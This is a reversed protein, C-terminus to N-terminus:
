KVIIKQIKSKGSEHIQKVIYIGPRLSAICQTEVKSIRMGQLNYYQTEVVADNEINVPVIGTIADTNVGIKLVANTSNGTSSQFTIVSEFPAIVATETIPMYDAGESNLQYILQNEELESADINLPALTPNVQLRYTDDIFDLVGAELENAVGSYSIVSPYEFANPFEIIYGTNEELAPPDDTTIQEGFGTGTWSKLWFNNYTLDEDYYESHITSVPFPFGISYWKKEDITKQAKINATLKSNELDLSTGPALVLSKVTVDNSLTPYKENENVNIIVTDTVIPTGNSWNADDAWVNDSATALWENHDNYEYSGLCPTAKRAIGRQDTTPITVGTYTDAGKGIAISTNKLPVIGGFVTDPVVNSEITTYHAFLPEIDTYTNTLSNTGNTGLQINEILNKTGEMTKAQSPNFYIGSSSIGYNNAMICNVFHLTAKSPMYLVGAGTTEDTAVNGAFTCNVFYTTGNESYVAGAGVGTNNYFMCNTFTASSETQCYAAAGLACSSTNNKFICNEIELSSFRGSICSASKDTGDTKKNSTGTNNEFICNSVSAKLTSANSLLIAVGAQATNNRFQCNTIEAEATRLVVGGGGSGSSSINDFFVCDELTVKKVGTNNNVCIGGGLNGQGKSVSCNRVTLYLNSENATGVYVVGGNRTNAENVSHNQAKGGQLNLNELTVTYSKTTAGEGIDFVKYASSGPNAVKVTSGNGNITLGKDFAIESTLTITYNEPINIIDGSAANEILQRLTGDGSDGADSVDYTTQASVTFSLCLAMLLFIFKTKMIM